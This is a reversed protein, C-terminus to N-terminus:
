MFCISEMRQAVMPKNLLMAFSTLDPSFMLSVSPQAESSVTQKVM